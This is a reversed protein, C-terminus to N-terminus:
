PRGEQHFQVPWGQQPWQDRIVDLTITEQPFLARVSIDVHVNNGPGPLREVSVFAASCDSDLVALVLASARSRIPEPIDEISGVMQLTM